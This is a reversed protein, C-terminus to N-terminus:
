SRSRSTVIAEIYRTGRTPAAEAAITIGIGIGIGIGTGIGIGIGDYSRRLDRDM